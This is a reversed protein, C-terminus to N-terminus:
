RGRKAPQAAAPAAPAVSAAPPEAPCAFPKRSGGTLGQMRDTLRLADGNLRWDYVTSFSLVRAVYERTEKYSITEIWFDPDMAPRQSMWRNLPTPGANYGAIVQYPKGGYRDMLQRLYASGIAINADADFLTDGGSWPQGIKAAIAAGTAPVVQMLGRADAGSRANPDFVSEARIEAAVWAPDLNNRAAERRIAADHHLPFRLRYLRQEEPYRKGGVNVLGFVARDFWGNDQAVEVALRRQEDGFRALAANWERAAWGKRDLQFLQLARVINPDRAIAQKAAPASAPQWPCLAYPQGLRDAALFGHFDPKRAAQAYLAKAGAADGTLESTRAAFYLWRSDNRQADPMRRIAALAAAWDGRSLAERVRWEQLSDDYASVPVNALRRASDPLYSAVTWLAIQYLVRGNEDDGFTLAKAVVPLLAEARDPDAKALKALATSAVLRSRPTSPWTAVDAAPADLYAAYLTAQAADAPASFGRAISRMVGTQAGAAAKDYREWRLADTLGGQAALLAFPADCQAPLSSGSSRWLAQADTTWQADARNMAMLAQLRLCRLAADDIGSDWNALFAQWENRRALANLWDSRFPAAVPEGKRTALFANGRAVPLTDFQTRLAAYELWGALPQSRFGALAVDDLGGRAAADFAAKLAPDPPAIKTPAAAILPVSPSASPPASQARVTAPVCALLPLALLLSPAFKHM